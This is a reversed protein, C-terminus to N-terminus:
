NSQPAILSSSMGQGAQSVKPLTLTATTGSTGATTSSTITLTGGLKEVLLKNTYLGLGLGEHDFEKTDSARMFPKFIDEIKDSPIGPGHDIVSLKITNGGAVATVNVSGSHPSFNVANELLSWVLFRAEDQSAYVGLSDPVNSTITINKNDTLPQLETCVDRVVTSLPQLSAEFLAQMLPMNPM